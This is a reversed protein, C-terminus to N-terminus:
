NFFYMYYKVPVWKKKAHKKKRKQKLELYAESSRWGDANPQQKRLWLRLEAGLAPAVGLADFRTGADSQM